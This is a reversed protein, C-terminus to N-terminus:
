DSYDGYTLPLYGEAALDRFLRANAAEYLEGLYLDIEPSLIPVRGPLDTVEGFVIGQETEYYDLRVFPRRIAKSMVESIEILEALRRVAPLERNSPVFPRKNVIESGDPWFMRASHRGKVRSGDAERVEFYGVVGYFCFVKIDCPVLGTKTSSGILYEEAFYKAKGHHRQELQSLVEERTIEKESLGDIFKSGNRILPFVSVGGGGYTSKLVFRDPLSEWTIDAPSEWVALIEPVKVGHARAFNAADIKQYLDRAPDRYGSQRGQRFERKLARVANIFSPALPELETNGSGTDVTERLDVLEREVYYLASRPEVVAMERESIQM